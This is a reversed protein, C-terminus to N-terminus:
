GRAGTVGRLLDAGRTTRPELQVTRVDNIRQIFVDVDPTPLFGAGREPWEVLCVGEGKLYDRLGLFELEEPDNLRYFDFHYVPFRSFVYPEVLTFTPSKVAGTHGLARLVGAVLTTKGTGLAGRLFVLTGPSLGAALQAGLAHMDAVSAATIRATM